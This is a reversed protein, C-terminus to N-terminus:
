GEWNLDYLNGDPLLYLLDLAVGAPDAKQSARREFGGTKGFIRLAASDASWQMSFSRTSKGDHERLSILVPARPSGIQWTHISFYGAVLAGSRLLAARRGDPAVALSHGPMLFKWEDEGGGSGYLAAEPRLAPDAWSAVYRRLKQMPPVAWPQWREYIIREGAWKPRVIVHGAPIRAERTRSGDLVFMRQRMSAGSTEETLYITRGGSEQIWTIRGPLGLDHSVDVPEVSGGAAAEASSFESRYREVVADPKKFEPLAEEVGSGWTGPGMVAICTTHLVLAPFLVAASVALVWRHDNMKSPM